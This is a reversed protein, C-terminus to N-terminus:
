PNKWKLCKAKIAARPSAKGAFAKALTNRCTEPATGVFTARDKSTDDNRKM